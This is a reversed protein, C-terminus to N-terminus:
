AVAAVPAAEVKVEEETKAAPVAAEPTPEVASVVPIEESAKVVPPSVGQETHGALFDELEGIQRGGAIWRQTRAERKDTCMKILAPWYLSHDYEFELGGNFETWLQEKPVYQSMDENFKIKEKTLPDIFPTILKFFGNVIWPVTLNDTLWEVVRTFNTLTCV